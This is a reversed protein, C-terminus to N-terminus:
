PAAHTAAGDMDVSAVSSNFGTLDAIAAGGCDLYNSNRIWNPDPYFAFVLNGEKMTDILSASIDRKVAPCGWSRGIRGQTNVLLPNVYDAGHIVIARQRANDNIGPELGDMRLSYGNAGYYTEATAFLGLSSQHSDDVNSFATAMNDGSGEGHAVHEDYLLRQAALDFIWLRKQSSPRSFDIVALKNATQSARNKVMACKRAQLAMSLVAPDADPALRQMSELLKIQAQANQPLRVAVPKAPPSPREVATPACGVLFITFPILYKLRM